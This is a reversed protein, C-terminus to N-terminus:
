WEPLYWTRKGSEKRRGVQLTATFRRENERAQGNTAKVLVAVAHTIAHREIKEPNSEPVVETM